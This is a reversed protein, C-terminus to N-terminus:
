ANKPKSSGPQAGPSSVGEGNKATAAPCKKMIHGQKGCIHCTRRDPLTCERLAHQGQCRPCRSYDPGTGSRNARTGVAAVQMRTLAEEAEAIEQEDAGSDRLSEAMQNVATQLLANVRTSGHGSRSVASSTSATPARQQQPETAAEALLQATMEEFSLGVGSMAARQARQTKAVDRATLPFRASDVGRQLLEAATESAMRQRSVSNYLGTARGIYASMNEGAQMRLQTLSTFATEEDSVPTYHERLTRTFTAWDTVQLGKVARLVSTHNRWWTAAARDFYGSAYELQLDFPSQMLHHARMAREMRYLWEELANPRRAEADVLETPERTGLTNTPLTMRM